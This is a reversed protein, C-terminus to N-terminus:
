GRTPVEAIALEFRSDGIAELRDALDRAIRQDLADIHESASAQLKEAVVEIAQNPISVTIDAAADKAAQGEESWVGQSMLALAGAILVRSKGAKITKIM